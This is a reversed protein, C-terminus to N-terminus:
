CYLTGLLNIKITKLNPEMPEEEVETPIFRFPESIGANAMVIDISGHERYVEAFVDAQQQWSSVDCKKFSINASPFKTQLSSIVESASPSIDFVAM